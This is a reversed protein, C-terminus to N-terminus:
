IHILSLDLIPGSEADGTVTLGPILLGELVEPSHTM